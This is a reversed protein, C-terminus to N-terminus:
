GTLHPGVIDIFQRASVIKTQKWFVLLNTDIVLRLSIM